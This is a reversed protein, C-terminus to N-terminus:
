KLHQESMLQIIISNAKPNRYHKAWYLLSKKKYKVNLIEPQNTLEELLSQHHNIRILSIVKELDAKTVIKYEIENCYYVHFFVVPIIILIYAPFIFGFGEPKLCVYVFNLILYPFITKFYADFYKSLNSPNPLSRLKLGYKKIFKILM